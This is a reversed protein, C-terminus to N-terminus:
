NNNSWRRNKEEYARRHEVLQNLDYYDAAKIKDKFFKVYPSEKIPDKFDM